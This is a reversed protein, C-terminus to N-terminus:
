SIQRLDSEPVWGVPPPLDDHGDWVLGCAWEGAYEGDSRDEPGIIWQREWWATQGIIARAAPKLDNTYKPEFVAQFRTLQLNV